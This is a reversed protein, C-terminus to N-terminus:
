RVRRAMADNGQDRAVSAATRGTADALNAEAGAAMLMNVQAKRDFMAAMMLATQGQHNRANVDCGAKLLRAAIADEGKFAVGMQATNGQAADPKCADAKRDLLANVTDLHGDYAALILPTFGRPDYANIDAGAELLPAIMDTRGMSAADFLMEQVHAKTVPTPAPDAAHVLGPVLLAAIAATRFPFRFMTTM